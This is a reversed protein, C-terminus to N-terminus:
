ARSRAHLYELSDRDLSYSCRIWRSTCEAQGKRVGANWGKSMERKEDFLRSSPTLIAARYVRAKMGLLLVNWVGQFVAQSRMWLNSSPRAEFNRWYITNGRRKGEELWLLGPFASERPSKLNVRKVIPPWKERQMWGRHLWREKVAKKQRTYFGLSKRRGKRGIKKETHCAHIM